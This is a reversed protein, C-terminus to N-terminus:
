KKHRALLSAFLPTGWYPEGKMFFELPKYTLFDSYAKAIPLAHRFFKDAAIMLRHEVLGEHGLELIKWAIDIPFLRRLILYTGFSVPLRYLRVNNRFTCTTREEIFKNFVIAICEIVELITTCRLCFDMSLAHNLNYCLTYVGSGLNAHYQGRYFGDLAHTIREKYTGITDIIHMDNHDITIGDLKFFALLPDM